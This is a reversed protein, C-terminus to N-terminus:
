GQQETLERFHGNNLFFIVQEIVAKNNMMFTHTASMEIHDSMGQLRTSDVSVKGDDAGPILLSLFLNISQNGAIIGVDFNAPGLAQPVSSAATGLQLGAEGNLAKFGPVSGLKDVVQSGQNPPGLMVVRHLGPLPKQSLYQRVLIGGLSHTVFSVPTDAPCAALAPEIALVALEDIDHQRSPYGLNVVHFSHASLQLALAEMSSETRALGHLLIVCDPEPVPAAKSAANVVVCAVSLVALLLVALAMQRGTMSAHKM